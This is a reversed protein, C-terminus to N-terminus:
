TGSYQLAGERVLAQDDEVLQVFVTTPANNISPNETSRRNVNKVASPLSISIRIRAGRRANTGPRIQTYASYYIVVRENSSAHRAWFHRSLRVSASSPANAM